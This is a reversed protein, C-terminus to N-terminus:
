LYINTNNRIVVNCIYGAEVLLLLVVVVGEICVRGDCLFFGVITLLYV